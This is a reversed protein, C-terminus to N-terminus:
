FKTRYYLMSNGGSRRVTIRAGSELQFGIFGREAVFGPQTPARGIRMEVRAGYSPERLQVLSAADVPTVRRWARVDIRYNTDVTYRWHLGVDMSQGAGGFHLPAALGLGDIGTMGLSLGLASRRPPLLSLDLRTTRTAGDPEFRPLSTATAEPVVLQALVAASPAEEDQAWASPAYLCLTMATAAMFPWPRAVAKSQRMRCVVVKM